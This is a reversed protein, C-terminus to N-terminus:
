TLYSRFQAVLVGETRWGSTVSSEVLRQRSGRSALFLTGLDARDAPALILYDGHRIGHVPDFDGHARVVSLKVGPPLVDCLELPIGSATLTRGVFAPGPRLHGTDDKALFGGRVLNLAVKHASSVSSYGMLLALKEISPMSGLEAYYDALVAKAEDDRSPRPM